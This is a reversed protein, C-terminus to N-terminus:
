EADDPDISVEEQGPGGASWLQKYRSNLEEVFRDRFYDEEIELARCRLANLIKLAEKRGAESGMLGALVRDTREVTEQFKQLMEIKTLIVGMADIQPIYSEIEDELGLLWRVHRYVAHRYLDSPFTYPFRKSAIIVDAQHALQPPVRIWLKRSDGREDSAPLIFEITSYIRGSETGDGSINDNDEGQTTPDPVLRIDPHAPISKM